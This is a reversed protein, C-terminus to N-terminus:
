ALCVAAQWAMSFDLQMTVSSSSSSSDLRMPGGKVKGDEVSAERGKEWDSM